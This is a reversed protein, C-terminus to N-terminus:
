ISVSRYMAETRLTYKLGSVLESGEHLVEPTFLLVSGARPQFPINKRADSSPFMTTAGGNESPVDHLYLQFTVRSVDGANPHSDPRAYQGDYHKAFSQGPTYLLFRCRENLEVLQHTRGPRLPLFKDPLAPRIVDFLWKTLEPSDVIVRHGDRVVPRWEQAWGMNLLAPNFGKENVSRLLEACQEENLVGHVARAFTNESLAELDFEEITTHKRQELPNDCFLFAPPTWPENTRDPDDAESIALHRYLDTEQESDGGWGGPWYFRDDPEFGM